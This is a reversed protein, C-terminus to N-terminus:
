PGFFEDNNASGEPFRVRLPNQDGAPVDVRLTGAVPRAKKRARHRDWPSLDLSTLVPLTPADERVIRCVAHFKPLEMLDTYNFRKQLTEDALCRLRGGTLVKRDTLTLM